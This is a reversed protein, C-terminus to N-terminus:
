KPGHAVNATRPLQWLGILVRVAGCCGLVQTGHRKERGVTCARARVGAQGVGVRSWGSGTHVARVGVQEIGM